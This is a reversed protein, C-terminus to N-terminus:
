RSLRFSLTLRATSPVPRGDSTAPRFRAARVARIAAADLERFGTSVSVSVEVVVGKENVNLELTVDGSEGRRRAGRPYDPRIAKYPAPPADIRAHPRLQSTSFSNIESASDFKDIRDIRDSDFRDFKNISDIRDGDFRDFKDISDVPPEPPPTEVLPTIEHPEVPPLADFDPTSESEAKEDALCLEVSTLDLEVPTVDEPATRLACALACAFAVHFGVSLVLARGFTM